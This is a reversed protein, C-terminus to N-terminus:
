ATMCRLTPRLCAAGARSCRCTTRPPLATADGRSSTSGPMPLRSSSTVQRAVLSAEAVLELAHSLTEAETYSHARQALDLLGTSRRSERDTRERASRRASVDRVTLVRSGGGVLTTAVEVDIMSGDSRRWRTEQTLQGSNGIALSRITSEGGTGLEFQRLSLGAATGADLGLLAHFAANAYQIDGAADVLCAGIPAEELTRARAAVVLQAAREARELTVDRVTSLWCARGAYSVSARRLELMAPTGDPKAFALDVARSPDEGPVYGPLLEM